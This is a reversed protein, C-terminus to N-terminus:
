SEDDGDGPQDRLSPAEIGAEELWRELMERHTGVTVLQLPLDFDGDFRARDTGIHEVVFDHIVRSGTIDAQDGVDAGLRRLFTRVRQTSAWCHPAFLSEDERRYVGHRALERILWNVGIGLSRNIPAADVSMREADRSAIPRLISDLSGSGEGLSGPLRRILLIYDDLGRAITYLDVLTRKWLLFAQDDRDPESWRELSDRWPRFDGPPRSEALQRWWGDRLGHQIFGRHQPDQTRGFTRYCALAFMTFWAERDDGNRLVSASFTGPYVGAAYSRAEDDRVQRWWDHIKGLISGAADPLITPNPEPQVVLRDHDGLLILLTKKEEEPWDPVIQRLLREIDRRVWTPRDRCMAKALSRGQHGDVLYRLVGRQRHEDNAYRAWKLLLSAKPGYGSSARAVKFFDLAVGRYDSHLLAGDPAFGCYRMEDESGGHQSSLEGVNRWTGDQARFSTHRAVDLISKRESVVPVREISKLTLLEGLRSGLDVDIRKQDGTETKLVDSLAVPRLGDFDLKRLQGAVRSHVLCRRLSAVSPWDRIRALVGEGALAGDTYYSVESARVLDDFPRPLDTPVVRRDGALRSYGGGEPHLFQALDDDFDQSMVEFLGSWLERKASPEASDLGLAKSVRVWDSEVLDHLKLLREGLKPGLGKFREQRQQISGALRGRGPDVAFPGNLLWGSSLKEELPALNWIRPLGDEFACAGAHGVKLLLTFGGGLDLRLARQKGSPSGTVAVVEVDSDAGPLPSATCHVDMPHACGDIAIHTIRRAFAPLWTAARRFPQLIEGVAAPTRPSFPIDILTAKRDSPHDHRRAEEIGESWKDPLFAGRTRLAIFGSAIGVSDSLLHISKFGLGFKGTLDHDARKESFNMVLMNLLDRDRGNRRGADSDPGLHNIPRGWHVVRLGAPDGPLCRVLFGPDESNDDLQHYADDANQFLEFPVRTSSYGLDAIKTRVASLLDAAADPECLRGWLDRKIRAQGGAHHEPLEAHRNLRSEEDHYLRLAESCRSEPPLAMGSLVTPLRERLLRETEDVLAQDVQCARDLVESLGAGSDGRLMLCGDAVAEVLHRFTATAEATSHPPPIHQVALDILTKRSGDPSQILRRHAHVNATKHTNGVLIASFGHDLPADFHDGSLALAPVSHGRIENIRFRREDVRNPLSRLDADLQRWLDDVSATADAQWEEALHRMAPYRGILGLYLIVLDSPIRGRWPELLLRHREVCLAEINSFDDNQPVAQGHSLSDGPASGAPHTASPSAHPRHKRLHARYDDALLHTRAVGDAEEVVEDGRRWGGAATPLFTTRLLTRRAEEPWAAVADFEYAHARRAAESALDSQAVITALANLYPAAMNREAETPTAFSSVVRVVQPGQASDQAFAQLVASLLPWGPLTLDVNANALAAFDAVPYDDPTGLRGIPGARQIRHALADLSRRRDPLLRKRVLTFARHARVDAPLMDITAFLSRPQNLLTRAAETVPQPLDLVDAPSVPLDNVVLWPTEGLQSGGDIDNVAGLAVLIERQFRHTESLSLAREIQTKPSWPRIIDQQKKRAAPDASPRITRVHAKLADPIPWDIVLFLAEAGGVTGDSDVHIPLRRLLPPSLDLGLIADREPETLALRAISDLANEFLAEVNAQDLATIGIHESLRPTLAATIAAPVIFTSPQHVLVAQVIREVGALGRLVHLKAGPPGAEPTGTCLRRLAQRDDALTPALAEILDARVSESGFRTSKNIIPFFANKTASRIPIDLGGHDKLLEATRGAIITAEVRPLADTLTRLLRHADPSHQFLLGNAARAVLTALSLVVVKGAPDTGRLVQVDALEAHVALTSIRHGNLLGLAATAAQDALDTNDGLLLPELNHLFARLDTESLPLASTDSCWGSRVPLVEAQSSALVRLVHRREVSKPLPVLSGKPTRSLIRSLVESQALPRREDTLANRLARVLHPGTARVYRTSETGAPVAIDLFDALLAPASGSQLAQPRLNSLLSDLEEATWRIPEATLCAPQDICLVINRQRAWSHADPILAELREPAIAVARPLPRLTAGRSALRWGLKRSGMLSLVLAHDKCVAARHCDFWSSTAITAVLRELEDFTAVGSDLADRLVLPVLPLVGADRIEANWARRLEGPNSPTDIAVPERIGEIDRRGSDIFFYGHLLLSFRSPGTANASPGTRSPTPPIALPIKQDDFVPLFVAWSITLEDPRLDSGATRLLAAAAHPEGKEPKPQPDFVSPATPWHTSRKLTTLRINPNTVERGFFTAPQKRGTGITGGFNHARYNKGGGRAAVDAAGAANGHGPDRGVDDANEDDVVPGRLRTATDTVRVACHTAPAAEPGQQRRIEISELHRLITLLAQLDETQALEDVTQRVSPLHTSFALGPAPQLSASRFPLWVVFARADFEDSVAHRLITVDSDSLADWHGAVSGPAEVNLFPNVVERFPEHENEDYAHVIFADCLHFVAKQGFGFKGIAADDATKVSEGFSLIGRRDKPRFEGDNVVLLGPERLLPNDAELWGSRADLRLRRARADDANQVLEKLIPYGTAYRDELNAKIQNVISLPSVSLEAM